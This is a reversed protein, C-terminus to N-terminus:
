LLDIFTEDNEIIVHAAETVPLNDIYLTETDYDALCNSTFGCIQELEHDVLIM